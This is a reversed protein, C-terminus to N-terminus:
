LGASVVNCCDLSNACKKKWHTKNPQCNKEKAACSCCPANSPRTKLVTRGIWVWKMFHDCGM